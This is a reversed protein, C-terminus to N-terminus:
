GRFFVSTIEAELNAKATPTLGTYGGHGYSSSQLLGSVGLVGIKKDSSVSADNIYSMVAEANYVLKMKPISKVRWGDYISAGGTRIIIYDSEATKFPELAKSTIDINSFGSQVNSAATTWTNDDLFKNWQTFKEHTDSVIETGSNDTYTSAYVAPSTDPTMKVPSFTVDFGAHNDNQEYAISYTMGIDTLAPKLPLYFETITAKSYLNAYNYKRFDKVEWKNVYTKMLSGTTNKGLSKDHYSGYGYTGNKTQTHVIAYNSPEIIASIYAINMAQTYASKIGEYDAVPSESIVDVFKTNVQTKLEDSLATYKGFDIDSDALIGATNLGEIVTGANDHTVSNVYAVVGLPVASNFVKVIDGTTGFASETIHETIYEGVVAKAEEDLIVYESTDVVNMLGLNTLVEDATDTTIGNAYAIIADPMKASVASSVSDTNTFGEGKASLVANGIITKANDDLYKYQNIDIVGIEGIETLVNTINNETAQNLYTLIGDTMATDYATVAAEMNAFGGQAPKLEILRTSVAKKFDPSMKYFKEYGTTSLRLLGADNLEKIIGPMDTESASNIDSLLKNVTSVINDQAIAYVRIPYSADSSSLSVSQIEKLNNTVVEYGRWGYRATSKETGSVLAAKGSEDAVVNGDTDTEIKVPTIANDFTSSFARMDADQSKYYTGKYENSDISGTLTKAFEASTGDKYNVKVKFNKGGGINSVAIKIINSYGPLLKVTVPSESTVAIADNVGGVLTETNFRFKFNRTSDLSNKWNNNSFTRGSFTTYENTSSIRYNKGDYGYWADPDVKDGVAGITDVNFYSDLVIDYFGTGDARDIYSVGSVSDTLIESAASVTVVNFLSFVVTLVLMLTLVSKKM